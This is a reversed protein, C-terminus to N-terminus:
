YENLDYKNFNKFILKRTKKKSWPGWRFNYCKPANYIKKTKRLDLPISTHIITYKVIYVDLVKLFSINKTTSALLCM